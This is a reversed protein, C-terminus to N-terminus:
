PNKSLTKWSPPAALPSLLESLSRDPQAVASELLTKYHQIFTEVLSQEYLNTDYDISGKLGSETDALRLTFATKETNEVQLPHITLGALKIEKPPESQYIFMFRSLSRGKLSELGLHKLLTHFPLEQNAFAGLIVLKVRNLLDSFRMMENVDTGLVVINKFAGLMQEIEKRNRNLVPTEVLIKAGGTYRYLVAQFAALLTMFLTSEHQRGLNKLEQTFAPSFDFPLSGRKLSGAGAPLPPADPFVSDVLQREWYALLPKLTDGQFHERQWSAFDAYYLTHERLAPPMNQLIAQYIQAAEVIFIELSREDILIPHFNMLLINEDDALAVLIFHWPPSKGLDFDFRIEKDLLEALRDKQKDKSLKRWDMVTLNLSAAEAISQRPEKDGKIFTTRLIEHRMILRNLTEKMAALDLKGRLRVTAALNFIESKKDHSDAWTVEQNLSLPVGEERSVPIMVSAAGENSARAKRIREALEAITPAEFSTEATIEVDFTEKVRNILKLAVLSHGGLRFFSDNRGVDKVGLLDQWMDALQEEVEGSPSIYETPLNPRAYGQAQKIDKEQELEAGADSGKELLYFFNRECVIVQPSRAGHLIRSFTQRLSDDTLERDWKISLIPYDTIDTYSRAFANLFSEAAANAIQGAGGVESVLTSCLAIFDLPIDQFLKALLRTSRIRPALTGVLSQLGSGHEVVSMSGAGHIVGHIAGYRDRGARVIKSMQSHDAINARVMIIDAKINELERVTRILRSTPDQPDHTELWKDREGPEPLITYTVLILRANVEKALFLALQLTIGLYDETVLYVGERRLKPTGGAPLGPLSTPEYVQVWRNKGRYAILSEAEARALESIIREVLFDEQLSKPKPVQIDISCCSIGPIEQPIVKCPGLLMAREPHLEEDGMVQQVHSSIIVLQFKQTLDLTKAERAIFYLSFFSRWLFAEEAKLTNKDMPAVNWLHFLGAPKMGRETLDSFLKRYDEGHSPRITCANERASYQKGELVTIVTHGIERLQRILKESLGKPSAFVIYCGPEKSIEAFVPMTNKWCLFYFPEDAGAIRTGQRLGTEEPEIWYRQREFPYTPLPIHFRPADGHLVQWDITVGNLWMNGLGTLLFSMDTEPDNVNRMLPTFRSFDGGCAPNQMGMVTLNRGPGVEVLVCSTEKLLRAIGDAFRVPQRTHNAWFNPDSIETETVWDGTLTSIYPIAPPDQKLRRSLVTLQAMIPEMMVSHFAHSTQIQLSVINKELLTGSIADIAEQAGSLICLGPTNVASLSLDDASIYPKMEEESIPVALMAGGPLADIMRAREVVLTLADKLSFVGAVCGAVYEGISHGILAHPQIGWDILTRALSYEIVFIAPQAFITQNLKEAAPDVKQKEEETERGMLKKLDLKANRPRASREGSEGPFMIERLDLGLLPKTIDCCEDVTKRFVEVSLYLELGMDPYHDGLGPFMFAVPREKAETYQTFIRQPDKQELASVADERGQCALIRRYEFPTRGMQLTFAVDALNIDTNNKLYELLNDAAKDLATNTRASLLLLQWDDPQAPIERAPAEELIIHANAGGMGFSSVGARRPYGNVQWDRLERNVYFPTEDFNIEPNPSEFHLSPPIMRHQLALVTKILGAMGAATALHGFNSKAAGIACYGKKQTKQRFAKTLAEIEIPDGLSTATGHAEIYSITEADIDAVGQAEIIVRAQGEVSPATFGVKASGDNNVASGKVLAYIFDGDALADELRRLVIVGVGSGFLTGKANADFTRTVGDPTLIGGEEYFYGVRHPIQVTVGGALAMDCEGSLLSECALHAAVLSTSCSTQVTMSPGKLNLMYSIRTSLYGRDVGLIIQLPSITKLKEPSRFINLTYYNSMESGAFIGVQGQFRAPDYGALEMAEWASELLLRNQPDLIEAERPNMGFFAADFHGPEDLVSRAKVYNPKKIIEAPVGAALLEEDTFFSVSSVGDRLNQWYEDKNKAGPFRCSLGIIAIDNDNNSSKDNLSSM